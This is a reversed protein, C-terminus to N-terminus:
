ALLGHRRRVETELVKKGRAKYVSTIQHLAADEVAGALLATEQITDDLAIDLKARMSVHVDVSEYNGLNIKYTRSVTVEKIEM